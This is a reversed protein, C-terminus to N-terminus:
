PADVKPPAYMNRKSRESEKRRVEDLHKQYEEETVPKREGNIWFASWKHQSINWLLDFPILQAERTENPQFRIVISGNKLSASISDVGNLWSKTSIEVMPKPEPVQSVLHLTARTIEFPFPLMLAPLSVGPQKNLVEHAKGLFLAHIKVFINSSIVDVKVIYATESKIDYVM